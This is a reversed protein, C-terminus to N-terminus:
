VGFSPLLAPSVSVIFGPLGVSTLICSFAHDDNNKVTLYLSITWILLPVILATWEWGTPNTKVSVAEIRSLVPTALTLGPGVIGILLREWRPLVKITVEERTHWGALLGGVPQAVPSPDGAPGNPAGAM